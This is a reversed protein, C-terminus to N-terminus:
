GILLLSFGHHMWHWLQHNGLEYQQQHKGQKDPDHTLNTAM